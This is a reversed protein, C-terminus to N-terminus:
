RGPAPFSLARPAGARGRLSAPERRNRRPQQALSADTIRRAAKTLITTIKTIAVIM